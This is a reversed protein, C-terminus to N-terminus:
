IQGNMFHFSVNLASYLHSLVRLVKIEKNRSLGVDIPTDPEDQAAEEDLQLQNLKECYISDILSGISLAEERSSYWFLDWLLTNPTLKLDILISNIAAM